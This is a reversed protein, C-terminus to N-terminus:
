RTVLDSTFQPVVYVVHSRSIKGLSLPMPEVCLQEKTSQLVPKNNASDLEIEMVDVRGSVDRLSTKPFTPLKNCPLQQRPGHFPSTAPFNRGKLVDHYTSITM